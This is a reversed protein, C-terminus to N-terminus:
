DVNSPCTLLHVNSSALFSQPASVITADATINTSGRVDDLYLDRYTSACECMVCHTPARMGRPSSPLRSRVNALDEHPMQRILLPSWSECSTRPSRMMAFTVDIHCTSSWLETLCGIDRVPHTKRASIHTDMYYRMVAIPYIRLVCRPTSM